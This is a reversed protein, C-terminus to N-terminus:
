CHTLRPCMRNGITTEIVDQGQQVMEKAKLYVEWKAGGLGALRNTIATQRM